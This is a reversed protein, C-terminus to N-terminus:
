LLGVWEIIVVPAHNGFGAFSHLLLLKNALHAWALYLLVDLFAEHPTENQITACYICGFGWLLPNTVSEIMMIAFDLFLVM